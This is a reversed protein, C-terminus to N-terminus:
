SRRDARLPLLRRHYAEFLDKRRLVGILRRSHVDAVVPLQTMDRYRFKDLASLMNEDPTVWVPSPTAVEAAIKFPPPQDDRLHPRLDTFSIVGTLEGEGLVTYLYDVPETVFRDLIEAIPTDAAVTAAPVHPLDRVVIERLVGSERGRVLDIGKHQLQLHFLSHRCFSHYALMSATVGALLPLIVLYNGTIELMILAATLPAGTVPALFAAMGVIGYGGISGVAQPWLGGFAGGGAVGLIGGIFIAPGLIGGSGGSGISLSTALIKLFAIWLLLQWAFDGNLAFTLTSSDTGLVAPFALAIVGVMLGGAAPRVWTALRSVSFRHEASHLTKVLLAAALGCLVGVGASFVIQAASELRFSPTEFALVNGWAAHAVATAVVASIVIPAVALASFEGLFIELAFFVGGIPANFIAAIGGAAGCGILSRMTVGSVRLFQGISSGVAAGIQAIPAERGVSGGSGLTIAASLSRLLVTRPRIIGGHLATAELVSPIGDGKAETPFLRVLPGIFLGGLAPMILVAAERSIIRGGGLEEFFFARFSEILLLFLVAGFGSAVGIISAIILHFAPESLRLRKATAYVAERLQAGLALAARSAVNNGHGGQETM